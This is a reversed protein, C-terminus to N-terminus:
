KMKLQKVLVMEWYVHNKIDEMEENSIKLTTMGFGLINKQTAADTELAAATIGLPLLVSKALPILTDKMLPLGAAM